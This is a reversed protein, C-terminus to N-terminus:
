TYDIRMCVSHQRFGQRTYFPVLDERCDLTTRYCGRRRAVENLYQVLASGIGQGQFRPAVAVDEIHGALGGDHIFKKEILLTATGAVVDGDLAVAIVRTDGDHIEKLISAARGSSMELVPSLTNLAELFGADLDKVELPRVYIM